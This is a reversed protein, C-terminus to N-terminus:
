REPTSEAGKPTSTRQRLDNETHALILLQRNHNLVDAGEVFRRDGRRMSTALWPGCRLGHWSVGDDSGQAIPTAMLGVYSIGEAHSIRLPLATRLGSSGPSRSDVESTM